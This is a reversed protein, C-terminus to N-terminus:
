GNKEASDLWEAIQKLQATTLNEWKEHIICGCHEPAFRELLETRERAIKEIDYEKM